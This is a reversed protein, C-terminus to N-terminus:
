VSAKRRSGVMDVSLFILAVWVLGFGFWRALPMEEHFYLLGLSFQIVPTLFQMFGVWSLPLRKAASGFLILPIATMVGFFVLGFSGWFGASAFQSGLPMFFLFQVLAVPLLFGSEFAFSNLASVKGGLKNKALGYIGFSGALILAIWPPRGYDFTLVLVAVFAVGVAVWQWVRLREGLFVVALVITVIPNIFYGLSSEVVHGSSIGIVYAQWNIMIFIAAVLIWILSTGSSLVSRISGWSRNLTILVVAALFGFVVRWVVVEVPSAFSLMSIIIPFSGWILYASLGYTLGKATNTSSVV